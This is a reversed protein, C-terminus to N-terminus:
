ESLADLNSNLLSARTSRFSKGMLPKTLADAAIDDTNVYTLEFKGEDILDKLYHCRMFLHRSRGTKSYANEAITIASMNDQEILTAQQKFGLDELLSRAWTLPKSADFLANLEAETSSPSVLKQKKSRFSFFSGGIGIAIGSHSKGDDHTCYSADVSAHLRTDKPSLTLGFDRTWRLYAIVRLARGEDHVTARHVKSALYTVAFLVDPRTRLALYMLKMIMSAFKTKDAPKGKTDHLFVKNTPTTATGVQYEHVLTDIYAPQSVNIVNGRKQILLGLFSLSDGITAKADHYRSRLDSIVKTRCSESAAAILLDDVYVAVIAYDSGSGRTFVCPDTASPKFGLDRLSGTLQTYWLAGSEPLGYLASELKVLMSGDERLFDQHDGLTAAIDAVDPSLRMYHSKKLSANLYAGPFDVTALRMDGHAAISLILTLSDLFVTPSSTEGRNYEDPNVGDGGAVLRAKYKDFKGAADYKEKLFMSSYLIKSGKPASKVPTWVKRDILQKLEATAAEISPLRNM